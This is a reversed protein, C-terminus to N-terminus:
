CGQNWTTCYNKTRQSRQQCMKLVLEPDSGPQLQFVAQGFTALQFPLTATPPIQSIEPKWLTFSTCNVLMSKWLKQPCWFKM